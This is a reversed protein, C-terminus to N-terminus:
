RRAGVKGGGEGKEGPARQKDRSAAREDPKGGGGEDLRQPRGGDDSGQGPGRGRGSDATAAPQHRAPAPERTSTPPPSEREVAVGVVTPAAPQGAPRPAPQETRDPLPPVSSAGPLVATPSPQPVPPGPAILAAAAPGPDPDWAALGGSVAAVLCALAALPALRRVVGTPRLHGPGPAPGARLLAAVEGATPRAASDSATMSRLAAALRPPLGAPLHPPRHLRAIAAEIPGGPYERRGTLAELLVLGLAYVDAPPGVYEGRVQEPAMYAATGVVVGTATVRTADTLRAIGFDTLRPHGAADILINAPKVDRHVIGREHVHDLAEALEAGMRAVDAAPLPGDSLGCALSDGDVLDMVVFMRDGATGADRFAVLGPHRLGALIDIERRDRGDGAPSLGPVLVKVAVTRGTRRDHARHVRATAGRGLVPGLEYRGALVTGDDPDVESNM